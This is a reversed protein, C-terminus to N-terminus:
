QLAHQPVAGDSGGEGVCVSPHEGTGIWKHLAYPAFTRCKFVSDAWTWTDWTVSGLPSSVQFLWVLEVNVLAVLESILQM